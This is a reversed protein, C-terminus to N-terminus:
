VVVQVEREALRARVKDYDGELQDKAEQLDRLQGGLLKVKKEQEFQATRSERNRTQLEENAKEVRALEREAEELAVRKEAAEHLM